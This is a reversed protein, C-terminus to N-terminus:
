EIVPSFACYGDAGLNIIGREIGESYLDYMVRSLNGNELNELISDPRGQCILQDYIYAKIVVNSIDIKKFTIEGDKIRELMELTDRLVSMEEVTLAKGPECETVTLGQLETLQPLTDTKRLVLGNPDIIVYQGGLYIFARESRESVDFKITDPLDRKVKVEKIYPDQLLARQMEKTSVDFFINVGKQAGSRQIIQEATYYTNNEVRFMQVDFFSSTAFRYLGYIVLIVILLRLFYHKKRRKKKKRPAQETRVPETQATEETVENTLIEDEMENM